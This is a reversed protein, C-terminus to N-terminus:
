EKELWVLMINPTLREQKFEQYGMSKYFHMNRKNAQNTFLRKKGNPFRSELEQLIRKGIGKNQCDPHVIMKGIYLAGDEEEFGRVSGIITGCEDVAKLIIGKQFQEEVEELTEQLPQITFDNLMEAESQYALYQLALIEKADQKQAQTIKM